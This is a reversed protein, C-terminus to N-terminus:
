REVIVAYLYCATADGYPIITKGAAPGSLTLVSADLDTNIVGHNGSGTSWDYLPEGNNIVNIANCVSPKMKVFRLAVENAPSGVGEVNIIVMDNEGGTLYGGPWGVDPGNTFKPFNKYIAGGGKPAYIKCSDVTCKPNYSWLYPSGDVSLRGAAEDSLLDIRVGSLLMRTVATRVGVVYNLVETAAMRDSEKLAQPNSRSTSTVVYSLAAFLAVAILILFLVNGQQSRTKKLHHQM